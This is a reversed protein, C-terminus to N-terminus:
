AKLVKREGLKELHCLSLLLPFLFNIEPKLTCSKEARTSLCLQASSTHHLQAVRQTELSASFSWGSETVGYLYQKEM